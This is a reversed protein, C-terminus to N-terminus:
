YVPVYITCDTEYMKKYKRDVWLQFLLCKGGFQLTCPGDALLRDVLSVKFLVAGDVGIDHFGYLFTLYPISKVM